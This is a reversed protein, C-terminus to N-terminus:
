AMRGATVRPHGALDASTEVGDFGSQKLILGVAEAQQYGHELLLWGGSRLHSRSADAIQRIAELGDPGPTLALEPEFRLDGQKLHADGAAVYPPNSVILDFAGDLPDLWSGQHWHIGSVENRVANRQAVSLAQASLDTAHLECAPRERAVALAIAGSGTGLDAVRLAKGPAIKQLAREVLLETEPRPILM